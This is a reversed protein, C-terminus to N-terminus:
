FNQAFDKLTISPSIEGRLDLKIKNRIEEINKDVTLLHLLKSYSAEYTMDGASIVKMKNLLSGTAYETDNVRGKLCQSVNLTIMGKYKLYELINKFTSNEVPGDGIGYTRLIVGKINSNGEIVNKIESFDCGPTIVYTFVLNRTNYLQYEFKDSPFLFNTGSNFAPLASYGFNAVVPFNPSGFASIMNSSIKVTRNGRFVSNNFILLVEPIKYNSAFILSTLLNNIGDSRTSSVPIQSGTFIVTKNLNKLGFSVASASYAMTDTGHLVIFSKYHHYNDGIVKIMKNWDNIDMNSSDLIPDFEIIKYKSIDKGHNPHINLVKKLIQELYGKVPQLGNKGEKMGITGGTYIILIEGTKVDIKFSNTHSLNLQSGTSIMSNRLGFSEKRPTLILSGIILLILLILIIKKSLM